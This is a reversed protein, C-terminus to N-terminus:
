GTAQLGTTIGNASSATATCIDAVDILRAQADLDRLAHAALMAQIVGGIPLRSLAPLGAKLADAARGKFLLGDARAASSPAAGSLAQFWTRSARLAPETDALTNAAAIVHSSMGEYYVHADAPMLRLTELRAMWQTLNSSALALRADNRTLNLERLIQALERIRMANFFATTLPEIDSVAVLTLSIPAYVASLDKQTRRRGIACSITDNIVAQARLPSLSEGDLLLERRLSLGVIHGSCTRGYLDVNLTVLQPVLLLPHTLAVVRKLNTGALMPDNAEFVNRWPLRSLNTLSDIGATERRLDSWEAVLVDNRIKEFNELRALAWSCVSLTPAHSKEPIAKKGEGDVLAPYLSEPLTGWPLDM